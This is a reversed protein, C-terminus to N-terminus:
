TNCISLPTVIQENFKYVGNKFSNSSEFNKPFGSGTVTIVNGGNPSM